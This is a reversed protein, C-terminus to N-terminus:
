TWPITWNMTTLLTKVQADTMEAAANFFAALYLCVFNPSRATADGLKISKGTVTADFTPVLKENVDTVLLMSGATRNHRMVMPRVSGIIDLTGLSSNAGSVAIQKNGNSMRGRAQVTTGVNIFDRSGGSAIPLIYALVMMSATLTDPLGADVNAVQNTGGNSLSLGTRTWGAVATNYGFVTGTATGTFTGISDALNGAAEQCKWLLSPNGTALGAAAMLTTWEAASAPVAKQSSSDYSVGAIGTFLSKNNPGYFPGRRVGYQAGYKPGLGM